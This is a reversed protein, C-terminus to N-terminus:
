KYWGHESLSGYIGDSADETRCRGNPVFNEKSADIEQVINRDRTQFNSCLSQQSYPICNLHNFHTGISCEDPGMVSANVQM